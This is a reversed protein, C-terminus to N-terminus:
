GSLTGNTVPQNSVKWWEVLQRALKLDPAISAGDALWKMESAYHEALEIGNSMSEPDVELVDPNAYIALVAALRRTHEAMKSAFGKITSLEGDPRISQEVVDHFAILMRRADPTLTLAFPDLGGSGALMAHPKDLFGTIRAKYEALVGACEPAAERYLRTGATSTPAVMLMRALLGIDVFALDHTLIEAVGPQVMLHMSCRRGPLFASGTLVRRRRIPSGDVARKREASPPEAVVEAKLKRGWRDPYRRELLWAGAQWTRNAAARILGVLEDEGEREAQKIAELFDIYEHSPNPQNATAIWSYLTSEGIGALAAATARTHGVRLAEALRTVVPATSSSEKM